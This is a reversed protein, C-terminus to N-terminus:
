ILALLYQVQVFHFVHVRPSKNIPSMPPNPVYYFQFNFEPSQFVLGLVQLNIAPSILLDLIKIVGINLLNSSMPVPSTAPWLSSSISATVNLLDPLQLNKFSHLESSRINLSVSCNFLRIKSSSSPWTSLYQCHQFVKMNSDSIVNLFYWVAITISKIVIAGRESFLLVCPFAMKPLHCLFLSIWTFALLKFPNSGIKM